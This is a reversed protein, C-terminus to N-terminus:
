GEGKNYICRAESGEGEQGKEGTDGVEWIHM